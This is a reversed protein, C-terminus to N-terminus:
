KKRRKFIKDLALIGELMIEEEAEKQMLEYGLLAAAKEITIVDDNKFDKLIEPLFRIYIM